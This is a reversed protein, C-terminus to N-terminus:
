KILGANVMHELHDSHIISYGLKIGETNMWKIEDEVSEGETYGAEYCAWHCALAFSLASDSWQNKSNVVGYFATDTTFRQKAKEWKSKM